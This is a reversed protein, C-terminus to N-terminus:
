VRLIAWNSHHFSVMVLSGLGVLKAPDLQWSPPPYDMKQKRSGGATKAAPLHWVWILLTWFGGIMGNFGPQNLEPNGSQIRMIGMNPLIIGWSTMLWWPTKRDCQESPITTQYGNISGMWIGDRFIDARLHSGWGHSYKNNWPVDLKVPRLAKTWFFVHCPPKRCHRTGRFWRKQYSHELRYFVWDKPFKGMAPFGAAMSCSWPGLLFMFCHGHGVFARIDLLKWVGRQSLKVSVLRTHSIQCSPSIWHSVPSMRPAM